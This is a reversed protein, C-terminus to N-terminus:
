KIRLHILYFAMRCYLISSVYPFVRCFMNTLLNLYISYVHIEEMRNNNIILKGNNYFAAIPKEIYQNGTTTRVVNTPVLLQEEKISISENKIEINDFISKVM